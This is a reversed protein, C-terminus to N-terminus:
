LGFPPVGRLGGSSACLWLRLGGGDARRRGRGGRGAWESQVSDVSIIAATCSGVVQEAQVAEWGGALVDLTAPPAEGALARRWVFEECRQMLRQAYLRPDVGYGHWSGVGDAVGIFSVTQSPHTFPASGPLQGPAGLGVGSGGAGYGPWAVHTQFNADEIPTEDRKARPLAAVGTKLYLPDHSHQWESSHGAGHAAVRAAESIGTRPLVNKVFSEKGGRAGELAINSIDQISIIGQVEGGRIVPLHSVRMESMLLAAQQVSDDPRVHVVKASPTMCDGIGEGMNGGNRDLKRLLDRATVLGLVRGRDAAGDSVVLLAFLTGNEAFRRVVHRITDSARVVYHKESVRKRLLVDGVHQVVPHPLHDVVVAAPTAVVVAAAQGTQSLM